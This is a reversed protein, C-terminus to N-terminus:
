AAAALELKRWRAPAYTHGTRRLLVENGDRKVIKFSRVNGSRCLAHVKKTSIIRGNLAPVAKPMVVIKPEFTKAEAYEIDVSVGNMESNISFLGNVLGFLASGLNKFFKYM